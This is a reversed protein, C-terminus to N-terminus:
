VLGTAVIGWYGGLVCCGADHRTWLPGHFEAAKGNVLQLTM